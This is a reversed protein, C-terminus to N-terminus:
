DANQVKGGLLYDHKAADHPGDREPDEDRASAEDSEDDRVDDLVSDLAYHDEAPVVDDYGSPELDDRSGAYGEEHSRQALEDYLYLSEEHERLSETTRKRFAILLALGPAGLVLWGPLRLVALWAADGHRVLLSEYTEPAVTRWVDLAGPAWSLDPDMAQAAMEAAAALFATTSLMVGLLFLARKM